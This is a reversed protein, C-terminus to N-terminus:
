DKGPLFEFKNMIERFKEVPVNLFTSQNFNFIDANFHSLNNCDNLTPAIMESTKNLILNM